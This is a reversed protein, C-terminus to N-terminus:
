QLVRRYPFEVRRPKGRVTGEIVALLIGDPNLRYRIVQPFDHMQNEFVVEVDTMSRLVFTAEEQGSPKAVYVIRDDTERLAVFEYERTTGAVVTRSMGLMTGGAPPMWIETVVRGDKEFQWTGALWSLRALPSSAAVAGSVFLVALLGVVAHKLM